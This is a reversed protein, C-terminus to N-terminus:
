STAKMSPQVNGYGLLRCDRIRVPWPNGNKDRFRYQEPLCCHSGPHYNVSVIEGAYERAVSPPIQQSVLTKFDPLQVIRRRWDHPLRWVRGSLSQWFVKVPQGPSLRVEVTALRARLYAMEADDPAINIARLDWNTPLHLVEQLSVEEVAGDTPDLYPEPNTQLEPLWRPPFNWTRGEADTYLIRLPLWDNWLRGERDLLMPYESPFEVRRTGPQEEPLIQVTVTKGALSRALDPPLNIEELRFREKPLQLTRTQSMKIRWFKLRSVTGGPIQPRGHPCAASVVTYKNKTLTGAWTYCDTANLNHAEYGPRSRGVKDVLGDLLKNDDRVFRESRYAPKTFGATALPLRDHPAQRRRRLLGLDM